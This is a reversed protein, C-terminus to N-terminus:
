GENINLRRKEYDHAQMILKTLQKQIVMGMRDLYMANDMLRQLIDTAEESIPGHEWVPLEQCKIKLAQLRQWHERTNDTNFINSVQTQIARREMYGEGTMLWQYNLEPFKLMIRELIDVTM